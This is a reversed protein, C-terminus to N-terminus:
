ECSVDVMTAKLLPKLNGEDDWAFIKLYDGQAYQYQNFEPTLSLIEDEFIDVHIVDCWKVANSNSYAAIYCNFNQTEQTNNLVYVEGLLESKYDFGPSYIELENPEIQIASVVGDCVAMKVFSNEPIEDSVGRFSFLTAKNIILTNDDCVYINDTGDINRVNLILKETDNESEYKIVVNGYKIKNQQLHKQLVYYSSVKKGTEDELWIEITCNVSNNKINEFTLEGFGFCESKTSSILNTKEDYLKGNLTYRKNGNAECYVTIVQKFDSGIASDTEILKIVEAGTKSKMETICIAYEYVEIDYYHNEDTYVPAFTENYKYYIPLNGLQIGNAVFTKTENDYEANNYITTSNNFNLVTVVGDEIAMKAFSGEEIANYIDEANRYLMGNIRVRQACDYVTEEGNTDVVRLQVVDEFGNNSIGKQLINCSLFDVNADAHVVFCCLLQIILLFVWVKRKMFIIEM